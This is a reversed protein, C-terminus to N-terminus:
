IMLNHPTLKFDPWKFTGYQSLMATAQLLMDDNPGPKGPLIRLVGPKLMSQFFRDLDDGKFKGSLNHGLTNERFSDFRGPPLSTASAIVVAPARLATELLM